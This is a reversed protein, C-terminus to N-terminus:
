AEFGIMRRVDGATVGAQRLARLSTDDRSKSLKRTEGPELILDHHFYRPRGYGLLDQLLAHASTAAFLDRGRVVDSIGQLADDVVVSLHYSTPVDRRALVFDGWQAPDAEVLGSEGEPGQGLEEWAVTEIGLHAKAAAVDLRWAVADGDVAEYARGPFLPAGDPDRPWATGTAEKEAVFARIDGRSLTSRYALGAEVLVDLAARYDEFHESQRRPEAEWEFGIWRLDEEMAAELAPTCRAVDIDEIRLLMQGGAERALQQNILASYAHGLHLFGNPSPAFRFIPRDDARRM